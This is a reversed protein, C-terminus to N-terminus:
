LALKLVARLTDFRLEARLSLPDAAVLSILLPTYNSTGAASRCGMAAVPDIQMSLWLAGPHLAAEDSLWSPQDLTALTVEGETKSALWASEGDLGLRLPQGAWEIRQEDGPPAAGTAFLWGDCRLAVALPARTSSLWREGDDRLKLRKALQRRSDAGLAWSWSAYGTPLDAFSVTAPHAGLTTIEAGAITGALHLRTYEIQLTLEASTADRLEHALQELMAALGTGLLPDFRQKAMAGLAPMRQLLFQMAERNVIRLAVGDVAAQRSLTRALYPGLYEIAARGSGVVLHGNVVAAGDNIWRVAGTTATKDAHLDAPVALPMALAAGLEQEPSRMVAAVWTESTRVNPALQMADLQYADAVFKSLRSPLALKFIGLGNKLAQWSQEPNKASLEILM